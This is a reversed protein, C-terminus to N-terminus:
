SPDGNRSHTIENIRRSLDALDQALQEFSFRL